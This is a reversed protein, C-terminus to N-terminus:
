ACAASPAPTTTPSPDNIWFTGAKIRHMATMALELSNTYISAGLGSAPFRQGHHHGARRRRRRHHHPCPRLDGRPHPLGGHRVNTLITPRCLAGHPRKAPPPPRRAAPHGRGGRRGAGPREVPGARRRHHAPGRRHRPDMPDGVVLGRVRPTSGATFEAAVERVM